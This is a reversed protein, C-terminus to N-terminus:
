TIKLRPVNTTLSEFLIGTKHAQILGAAEAYSRAKVIHADKVLGRLATIDCDMQTRNEEVAIVMSGQKALALVAPGGLCDIPVVVVDVDKAMMGDSDSETSRIEENKPNGAKCMIKQLKPAQHLYSLVCPLFTYGLEEAAAKPSVNEEVEMADFAPAHACPISFQKTIVHSILAEAGAIADVGDGNRYAQFLEDAEIEDEEEPFRAVVAIADCGNNILKESGEILTSVDAITGWSAGSDSLKLDVGIPRPTVTCSHINIGLTARAADAAQLHRLQLDNSMASDLLLGIKNSKKNMPLLSLRGSAFEDLAYGEVYLANTIPWYLMAGNMVNPHTILIDSVSALLRASPLADGAYGGINAGVGTPVIMVSTYPNM